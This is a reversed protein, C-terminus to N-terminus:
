CTYMCPTRCRLSSNKSSRCLFASSRMVMTRYRGGDEPSAMSLVRVILWRRSCQRAVCKVLGDVSLTCTSCPCLITVHSLSSMKKVLHLYPWALFM